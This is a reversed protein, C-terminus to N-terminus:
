KGSGEPVITLPLNIDFNGSSIPSQQSRTERRVNDSVYQTLEGLRVMQDQNLDAKGRLGELLYHTFVGHGGGWRKDEQSLQNVDSASFTLTSARARALEALYDNVLEPSALARTTAGGTVGRSHCADAFVLVSKATVYDRLADQIEQMKVSTAGLRNLDSDYTLLYLIKPRDPDPAGHGAFYIFVLDEEIALKLFDTLAERVNTSSAQENLLFRVNSKPVGVGGEEIPKTVTNYFEQADRDAYRLQPVDTSRYRSIGVIVAWRQGKFLNTPIQRKEALAEPNRTLKFVLRNENKFRDLARVEIDNEGLVLLAEGVFEFGDQGKSLRVEQGNITVVAVGSTDKAVGRVVVSSNQTAFKSDSPIIKVGRTSTVVPEWVEIDPPATDRALVKEKTTISLAKPEASAGSADTAEVILTLIQGRITESAQLPIRATASAKPAIDGVQVSGPLSIGSVTPDFRPKVVVGKAVSGGSNSISVLVTGSEGADLAGNGSPEVFQLTSALAAPKIAARTAVSIPRPEAKIGNDASVEVTLAITQSTVYDLASVDFRGSGSGYPAIDGITVSKPFDLGITPAASTLIAVVNKAATGGSNSVTVTIAGKEGADLAKNGSPETFEITAALIAPRAAALTAVSVSRPEAKLGSDGTVEVTFQLSQTQLSQQGSLEFSAGSSANPAIVGIVAVDQFQLGAVPSTSRLRAVVNKAPAGGANSVTVKITGKEGADLVKNGSPETFEVTAALVAPMAAARTNITLSKPEVKVGNDNTVDVSFKLSQTQVNELASIEFSGVGSANPAIEGIAAADRFQLGAIPGAAALKAVVNKAASGGTNTVTVKVTGKEGADLVGNGSPESLEVTASLVPPRVPPQISFTQSRAKVQSESTQAVLAVVALVAVFKKM